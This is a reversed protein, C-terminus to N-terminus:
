PFELLAHCIASVHWNQPMIQMAHYSKDEQTPAAAAV